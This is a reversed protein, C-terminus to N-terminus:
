PNVQYELKVEQLNRVVPNFFTFEYTGNLEATFETGGDAVQEGQYISFGTPDNVNFILGPRGLAGSEAFGGVAKPASTYTASVFDGVVLEVEFSEWQEPLILEEETFTGSATLEGSTPAPTEAPATQTAAAPAQGNSDGGDDGDGGGCAALALSGILLLAAVLTPVAWHGRGIAEFLPPPQIGSNRGIANGGQSM